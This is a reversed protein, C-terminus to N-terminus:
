KQLRIKQKIKVVTFKLYKQSMSISVYLQFPTFKHLESSREPSFIDIQLDNADLPYSIGQAPILDWPFFLPLLSVDKALDKLFAVM